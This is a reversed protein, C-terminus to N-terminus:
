LEGDMVEYEKLKKRCEDLREQTDEKEMGELPVEERGPVFTICAGEKRMRGSLLRELISEQDKLQCVCHCGGAERTECSYLLCSRKCCSKYKM